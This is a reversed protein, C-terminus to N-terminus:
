SASYEDGGSDSVSFRSTNSQHGGLNSGCSVPMMYEFDTQQVINSLGIGSFSSDDYCTMSSTKMTNRTIGERVQVRKRRSLSGRGEQCQQWLESQAISSYFPTTIEQTSEEQKQDSLLSFNGFTADELIAQASIGHHAVCPIGIETTNLVTSRETGLVGEMTNGIGEAIQSTSSFAEGAVIYALSTTSNSVSLPFPPLPISPPPGISRLHPPLSRSTTVKFVGSQAASPEIASEQGGWLCRLLRQYRDAVDFSGGRDSSADSCTRGRGGSSLFPLPTSPRTFGDVNEM